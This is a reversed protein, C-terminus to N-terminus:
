LFPPQVHLLAVPPGLMPAEDRLQALDFILDLAVVAWHRVVRRRGGKCTNTPRGLLRRRLSLSPSSLLHDPQPNAMNSSSTSLDRRSKTSSDVAAPVPTLTRM